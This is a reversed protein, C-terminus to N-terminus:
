CERRWGAAVLMAGCAFFFSRVFWEGALTHAHKVFGPNLYEAAVIYIATGVSFAISQWVARWIV